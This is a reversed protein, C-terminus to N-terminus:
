ILNSPYKSRLAHWDAIAAKQELYSMLGWSSLDHEERQKRFGRLSRASFHVVLQPAQMLM